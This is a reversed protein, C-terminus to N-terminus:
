KPGADTGYFATKAEAETTKQASCLSILQPLTMRLAHTDTRRHLASQILWFIPSSRRSAQAFADIGGYLRFENKIICASMELTNERETKRSTLKWRQTTPFLAVEVYTRLCGAM